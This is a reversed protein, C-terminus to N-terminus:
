ILGCARATNPWPYYGRGSRRAREAVIMQDYPHWLHANGGYAKEMDSGYSDQFSQDMQLGGYYGNGTNSDWAGEGTRTRPNYHICGWASVDGLMAWYHKLKKTAWALHETHSKIEVESLYVRVIQLWGSTLPGEVVTYHFKIVHMDHSIQERLQVIKLGPTLATLTTSHAQAETKGVGAAMIVFAVTLMLLKRLRM